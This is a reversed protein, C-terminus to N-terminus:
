IPHSSQTVEHKRVMTDQSPWSRCTFTYVSGVVRPGLGNQIVEDASCPNFVNGLARGRVGGGVGVAAGGLDFVPSDFNSSHCVLHFTSVRRM